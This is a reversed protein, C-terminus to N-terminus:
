WSSAAPTVLMVRAKFSECGHSDTSQFGMSPLQHVLNLCLNINWPSWIRGLNKNCTQLELKLTLLGKHSSGQLLIYGLRASLVVLFDHAAASRPAVLLQLPPLRDGAAMAVGPSLWPGAQAPLSIDRVNQLADQYQPLSSLQSESHYPSM